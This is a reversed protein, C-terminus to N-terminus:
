IGSDDEAFLQTPTYANWNACTDEFIATDSMGVAISSQSEVFQMALGESAHWAIHCHLLWSGPNDLKFAIALYGNGPLAAVDRRPPNVLNFKAPSTKPNFVDAEQAVIYFDHGHLHIPHWIGFGTLDEIVYVVWEENNTQELPVVNYETPFITENNFIKLTTPSSWDLLLSSSNITWTFYNTFAFSVEEDVLSYAGVDLALHPVLSAVPEDECTGRPTTGVSTPDATSSSDYRLIGTANAAEMNASCTTGWNGRIWYNDAAANAEVIVDYRQGIGILLTDTTYPVIPVLDNAIVTLTHGDIAFEFHSDIGVNILRLRYKTGEVFTLEFKKGGGVCNPDTSASCDFINTGNMLTNELAPPAGLRASDWIEFVSEHAWDQLFIAGVDEDYDATAPGNIILPGFLGDGYQLSFHSHYWTTGYQTAQFKYTLTDGPAIPCQTVGPVGDYELSGLQRIGHWHISTGNYELNNTVHIILNDGWDAIIAPGPVTGNFTMASRTYGDPTITSNEVSLWYERTVGTPTVDYWNTDISYEGWCSRSTASNACSATTNQRPTLPSRVVPIASASVQAFFATLATFVTSYKM